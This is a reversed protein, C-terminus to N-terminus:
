VKCRSLIPVTDEKQNVYYKVAKQFTIAQNM